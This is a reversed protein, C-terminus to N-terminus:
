EMGGVFGRFHFRAREPQPPTGDSAPGSEDGEYGSQPSSVVVEENESFLALTDDLTDNSCVRDKSHESGPVTPSDNQGSAACSLEHAQAPVSAQFNLKEWETLCAPSSTPVAAHFEHSADDDPQSSPSPSHATTPEMFPDGLSYGVETAESGGDLSETVHQPTPTSPGGAEGDSTNGLWSSITFKYMLGGVDTSRIGSVRGSAPSSDQSNNVARALVPVLPTVNSPSGSVDNAYEYNPLDISSADDAPFFLQTKFEDYDTIISDTDDNRPASHLQDIIQEDDEGAAENVRTHHAKYSHGEDINHMLVDQDEIAAAKGKGKCSQHNELSNPGHNESSCEASQQGDRRPTACPFIPEMDPPCTSITTASLLDRHPRPRHPIELPVPVLRITPTGDLDSQEEDLGEPSAHSIEMVQPSKHTEGRVEAANDSAVDLADMTGQTWHQEVEDAAHAIEAATALAEMSDNASNPPVTSHHPDRALADISSVQRLSQASQKTSSESCDVSREFIASKESNRGDLELTLITGPMPTTPADRSLMLNPWGPEMAPPPLQLTLDLSPPGVTDLEERTKASAEMGPPVCIGRDDPLGSTIENLDLCDAKSDRRMDEGFPPSMVCLPSLNLILHPATSSPIGIPKTPSPPLAPLDDLNCPNQRKLSVARGFRRNRISGVLTGALSVRRHHPTAQPDAKGDTLFQEPDRPSGGEENLNGYTSKSISSRHSHQRPFAHRLSTAMAKPSFTNHRQLPKTPTTPRLAEGTSESKAQESFSMQPTTDSSPTKAGDSTSSDSRVYEIAGKIAMAGKRINGGINLWSSKKKPITSKDLTNQLANHAASGTGSTLDVADQPELLPAKSSKRNM